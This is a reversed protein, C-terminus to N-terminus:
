HATRGQGLEVQVAVDGRTMRSYPCIHHAADIRQPKVAQDLGPVSVNLRVPLIM